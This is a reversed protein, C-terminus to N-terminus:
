SPPELDVADMEALVRAVRRRAEPNMTLLDIIEAWDDGREDRYRMLDSAISDRDARDRILTQRLTRRAIESAYREVRQPVSRGSQHESAAHRISYRNLEHPVGVRLDKPTVLCHHVFQLSVRGVSDIGKEILTALSVAPPL